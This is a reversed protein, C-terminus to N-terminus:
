DRIVVRLKDAEDYYSRAFFPRDGAKMAMVKPLIVDLDEVLPLDALEAVSTWRPIGEQSAAIEGMLYEGRLIYIAIGLAEGTDV